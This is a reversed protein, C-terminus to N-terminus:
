FLAVAALIVFLSLMLQAASARTPTPSPTSPSNPTANTSTPTASTPTASTPSNNQVNYGDTSDPDAAAATILDGLSGSQRKVPGSAVVGAWDIVDLEFSEGNLNVVTTALLLIDLDLATTSFKACTLANNANACYRQVVEKLWIVIDATSLNTGALHHIIYFLRRIPVCVTGNRGFICTTNGSCAPTCAPIFRPRCIPCCGGSLTVPQQEPLCDPINRFCAIVDDKACLDEPRKCSPCCFDTEVRRPIEGPQCV